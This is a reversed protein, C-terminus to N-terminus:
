AVLHGRLRALARSQAMRVAGPRRGLVAAVQEATFGAMVRLELLEQDARSLRGFAARVAVAEEAALVHDVPTVHQVPTSETSPGVTRYSRRRQERVVNRLVGFLWAEFGAGRWTFAGIRDIARVMTESVADDATARDPLRRRAYRYLPEYMRRYLAEWAHPDLMQARQVLARLGVEDIVGATVGGPEYPRGGRIPRSAVRETAM